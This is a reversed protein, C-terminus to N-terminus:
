IEIITSTPGLQECSNFIFFESFCLFRLRCQQPGQECVWRLAGLCFALMDPPYLPVVWNTTVLGGEGHMVQHLKEATDWRGVVSLRM